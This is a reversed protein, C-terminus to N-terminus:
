ARLQERRASYPSWGGGEGDRTAGWGQLGRRYRAGALRHLHLMARCPASVNESSALVPSQTAAKSCARSSTPAASTSAGADLRLADGEARRCGGARVRRVRRLRNAHCAHPKATISATHPTHIITDVEEENDLAPAAAAAPGRERSRAADAELRRTWVTPSTDRRRKSVDFLAVYTLAHENTTPPRGHIREKTRRACTSPQGRRSRPRLHASVPPSSVSTPRIAPCSHQM